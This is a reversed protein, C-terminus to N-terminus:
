TLAFGAGTSYVPRNLLVTRGRDLSARPVACSHTSRAAPAQILGLPGVLRFQRTACTAQGGTNEASSSLGATAGLMDNWCPRDLLQYQFRRGSGSYLPEGAPLPGSLALQCLTAGRGAADIRHGAGRSQGASDALHRAPRPGM